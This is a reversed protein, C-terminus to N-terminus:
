IWQRGFLQSAIVNRQSVNEMSALSKITDNTIDGTRRMQGSTDLLSVGLKDIYDTTDDGDGGAEKLRRTLAEVASSYAETNTGAEISILKYEQLMDASSDLAVTASLLDNAMDGTKKAFMAIATTGALVAGSFISA